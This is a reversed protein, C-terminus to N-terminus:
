HRNVQISFARQSRISEVTSRIDVRGVDEFKRISADLTAFTGTRGIGASCHVVIPPGLPHGRWTDGLEATMEAQRERVRQLFHLMSLASDPVGYDPWSVFQFHCVRRTEGNRNCVANKRRPKANANRVIEM